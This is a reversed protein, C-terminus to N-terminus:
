APYRKTQIRNMRGSQHASADESRGSSSMKLYTEGNLQFAKTGSLGVKVAYTVIKPSFPKPVATRLLIKTAPAVTKSPRITLPSAPYTNATRRNGPRFMKNKTM